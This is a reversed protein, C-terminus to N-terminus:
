LAKLKIQKTNFSEIIYTFDDDHGALEHYGFTILTNDRQEHNKAQIDLDYWETVMEEVECIRNLDAAYYEKKYFPQKRALKNSLINDLNPKEYATVENYKFEVPKAALQLPEFIIKAREPNAYNLYTGKVDFM